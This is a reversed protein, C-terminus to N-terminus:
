SKRLNLADSRHREAWSSIQAKETADVATDPVVLAQLKRMDEQLLLNFDEQLTLHLPPCRELSITLNLISTWSYLYMPLVPSAAITHLLQGIAGQLARQSLPFRSLLRSLSWKLFGM